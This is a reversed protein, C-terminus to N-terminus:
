AYATPKLNDLAEKLENKVYELHKTESTKTSASGDYSFDKSVITARKNVKSVEREQYYLKMYLGLCDIVCRDLTASFMGSDDDFELPDVEISFQGIAKKLWLKELSEPIVLKDQFTSEFSDYVDRAPTAVIINV